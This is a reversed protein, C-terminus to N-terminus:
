RKMMEQRRREWRELDRYYGKTANRYTDDWGDAKPGGYIPHLHEVIANFVKVVENQKGPGYFMENDAFNHLYGPHFAVEPDDFVARPLYDARVVAQTGAVNHLDNMVAVSRGTEDMTMLALGLWNEHHLVDDSGFFLTPADDVYGILKNMRTVYRHDEDDSDDLYWEGLGDLIAKSEDDSVCWLIFHEEPTNEHITEATREINQPRDLSPVLIATPLLDTWTM